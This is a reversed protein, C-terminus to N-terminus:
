AIAVAIRPDYEADLRDWVQGPTADLAKQIRDRLDQVAAERTDHIAYTNDSKRVFTGQKPLGVGTVTLMDGSDAIVDWRWVWCWAPSPFAPCVYVSTPNPM